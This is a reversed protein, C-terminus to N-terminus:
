TICAAFWEGSGEGLPEFSVTGMDTGCADQLAQPMEPNPAGPIQMDVGRKQVLVLRRDARVRDSGRPSPAPRGPGPGRQHVLGLQAGRRCQEATDNNGGKAAVAPGVAVASVAVALVGAVLVGGLRGM